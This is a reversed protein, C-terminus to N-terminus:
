LLPDKDFTSAASIRGARNELDEAIAGPKCGGTGRSFM